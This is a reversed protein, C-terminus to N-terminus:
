NEEDNLHEIRFQEQKQCTHELIGIYTNINFNFIKHADNILKIEVTQM